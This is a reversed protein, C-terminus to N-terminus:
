KCFTFQAIFTERLYTFIDNTTRGFCSPRRKRSGIALPGRIPSRTMITLPLSNMGGTQSCTLPSRVWNIWKGTEPEYRKAPRRTRHPRTSCPPSEPLTTTPTNGTTESPGDPTASVPIVTDATQSTDSPERHPASSPDAVLDPTTTDTEPPTSQHTAGSPTPPPASQPLLAQSVPTYPPQAVNTM